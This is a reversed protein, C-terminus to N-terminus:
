DGVAGFDNALAAVRAQLAAIEAQATAWPDSASALDAVPAGGMALSNSSQPMGLTGRLDNAMKEAARVAQELAALREQMSSMDIEIQSQLADYDGQLVDLDSMNSRRWVEAASHNAEAEALASSQQQSEGRLLANDRQARELDSSLQDLESRLSLIQQQPSLGTQAARLGNSNAISRQALDVSTSAALAAAVGPSRQSEVALGTVTSGAVASVLAAAVIWYPVSARRHLWQFRAHIDLREAWISPLPMALRLSMPQPASVAAVAVM